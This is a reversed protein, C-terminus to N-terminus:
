EVPMVELQRKLTSVMRPVEESTLRGHAVLFQAIDRETYRGVLMDDRIVLKLRALEKANVHCIRCKEFFLRGSHRINSFHDMLVEIETPSLGGHGANLFVSVPRGTKKGVLTNDLLDLKEFVFDGAHPAHCGACNQEYLTHPDIQQASAPSIWYTLALIGIVALKKPM